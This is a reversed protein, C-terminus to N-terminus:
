FETGSWKMYGFLYVFLYLFDNKESVSGAAQSQLAKVCGRRRPAPPDIVQRFWSATEIVPCPSGSVPFCVSFEFLDLCSNGGFSRSSTFPIFSVYFHFLLKHEQGGGLQYGFKTSCRIVLPGVRCLAGTSICSHRCSTRQMRHHLHPATM